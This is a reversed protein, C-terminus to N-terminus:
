LLVLEQLRRANYPAYGHMDNDFYVFVEKGTQRWSKCRHAWETLVEEAYSGDYKYVPGHLRVYVFDTTVQQPSLHNELDYMCFAANYAQLLDYIPENYWSHDRFEFTYRYYLPLAQLFDKFRSADCRWQPPLQFLIPGLKEQLLAVNEFFRVISQQPDKLKKLHTIFRSAKVSFLFDPPVAQYWAAFTEPTPLRYFSNNIEVTSFDQLYFKLYDQSATGAPYYINKWHKYHWGSCGIWIKREEEM